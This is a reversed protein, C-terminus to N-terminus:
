KVPICASSELIPIISGVDELRHGEALNVATVGHKRLFAKIREGQPHLNVDGYFALKEPSLKVTCGGIFGYPHGELRIGGPELVLVNFRTDAAAQAIGQAIDSQLEPALHKTNAFVTRGIQAANM